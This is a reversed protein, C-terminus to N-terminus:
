FPYKYQELGEDEEIPRNIGDIHIGLLSLSMRMTDVVKKYHQYMPENGQMEANLMKQYEKNYKVTVMKIQKKTTGIKYYSM